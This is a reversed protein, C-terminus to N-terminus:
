QVELPNVHQAAPGDEQNSLIRDVRRERKARGRCYPSCYRDREGLRDAPDATGEAIMRDRVKRIADLDEFCNRCHRDCHCQTDHYGSKPDSYLWVTEPATM